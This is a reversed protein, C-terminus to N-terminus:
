VWETKLLNKMWPLKIMSINWPLNQLLMDYPKQEVQLLWENKNFSLKGDRVLFSDRLGDVSTNKLISWYEIASLLLENAEEKEESTLIISTDVPTEMELNCLIKALGLEFEAIIEKGSALYQVLMAAKNNDILENAESLLSLKKFFMPLFSAVIVLGANHVFVGEKIEASYNYKKQDPDIINNKEPSGTGTKVSINDNLSISKNEDTNKEDDIKSIADKKKLKSAQEEKTVIKGDKKETGTEKKGSTSSEEQKFINKEKSRTFLEEKLSVSHILGPDINKLEDNFDTMLNNAFAAAISKLDYGTGAVNELIDRNLLMVISEKKAQTMLESIAFSDKKLQQLEQVFSDSGTLLKIFRDFNKEDFRAIRYVADNNSMIEKLATVHKGSDDSLLWGELALDFESKTKISSWWPLFGKQLYYELFLLFNEAPKVGSDDRTSGVQQIESRLQKGLNEIVQKRLNQKWDGRTRIGLNIELRDLRVHIDTPAMEDIILQMEPFLERYYWDTFEKQLAFGDAKGNYRLNIKQKQIINVKGNNM